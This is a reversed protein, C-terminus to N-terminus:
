SAMKLRLVFQAMLLVHDSCVDAGPCARVSRVANRYRQQITFFDIQNRVVRDPADAPSKWTYLRRKPLEFFTNMIALGYGACFEVFRDGRENREGLGFDGVTRGVRGSGVKANLDGMLVTVGKRKMKEMVDSLCDYFNDIEEEACAATPAYVQIINLGFPVANIQMLMIRDSVPVVNKVARDVEGSVIIAVGNRHHRGDEGAYYVVYDDVVKRGSLPWRMESIGLVEINLRKMEQLTNELKGDDYM